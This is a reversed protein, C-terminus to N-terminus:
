KGLDMRGVLITLDGFSLTVERLSLYNSITIERLKM